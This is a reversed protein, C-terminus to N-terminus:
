KRGLSGQRLKDIKEQINEAFYGRYREQLEPMMWDDGKIRGRCNWSGCKCEMDYNGSDTMAYDYTLEEGTEIDRMAVMDDGVGVNPDCSHNILFSAPPNHIDIPCEEKDNGIEYCLSKWLHADPKAAIEAKTLVQVGETTKEITEGKFIKEKAFLGRGKDPTNRVEVKPNLYNM